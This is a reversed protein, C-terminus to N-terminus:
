GMIKKLNKFHTKAIKDFIAPGLKAALSRGAEDVPTGAGLPLKTKYQESLRRMYEVFKARALISAAAVQVISEARVQQILKIRRGKKMLANEISDARGFKDSVALDPTHKEAINEIVRSHGWALLKNLNKIRAYLENYKEPGIVVVTHVFEDTIRGSLELIRNDSIKKSDRVGWGEMVAAEEPGAMVGAIVLPGFFDGKGSEDIGLIVRDTDISIQGNL